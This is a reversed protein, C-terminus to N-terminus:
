ENKANGLLKVNQLSLVSNKYQTGTQYLSIIVTKNKYV